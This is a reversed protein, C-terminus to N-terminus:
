RCPLSALGVALVLRLLLDLWYAHCCVPLCRHLLIISLCPRLGVSSVFPTGRYSRCYLSAVNLYLVPLWSAPLRAQLLPMGSCVFFFLIWALTSKSPGFSQAQLLATLPLTPPPDVLLGVIPVLALRHVLSCSSDTPTLLVSLLGRSFIDDPTWPLGIPSLLGRSSHTLPLLLGSRVINGHLLLVFWRSYDTSDSRFPCHDVHIFRYDTTTLIPMSWMFFIGLCRSLLFLCPGAASLAPSSLMCIGPTFPLPALPHEPTPTCQVIQTGLLSHYSLVLLDEPTPVSPTM